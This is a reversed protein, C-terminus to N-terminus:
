VRPRYKLKDRHPWESELIETEKYRMAEAAALTDKRVRRLGDPELSAAHDTGKWARDLTFHREIYQAGLVFAPADLGIGTSHDSFGIAKISPGYTEALRRIELLFIDSPPVPYSATCHYLVLDKLRGHGEFLQLLQEEEKRTTMGLSIHIDGPYNDCAFELLEWHTNIASPIKIYGPQLEMIQKLSTMDWVSCSYGIGMEECHTKLQAHQDISFELYERHEGYTAGFSHYPEPHASNYQQESLLERPNRKQFKTYDANCFVKAIRIMERAIEIDGKHNCGIEAIIVPPKVGDSKEKM